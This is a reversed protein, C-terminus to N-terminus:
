LPVNQYELLSSVMVFALLYAFHTFLGDNMWFITQYKGELNLEVTKHIEEEEEEKKKCFSIFLHTFLFFPSHIFAKFFFSVNGPAKRGKKKKAIFPIWQNQLSILANLLFLRKTCSLENMQMTM